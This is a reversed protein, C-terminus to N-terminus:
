VEVDGIRALGGSRISNGRFLDDLYEEPDMNSGRGLKMAALAATANGQSPLGDEGWAFGEPLDPLNGPGCLDAITQADEESMSADNGYWHSATDPVQAAPKAQKGFNDPGLGHVIYLYANANDKHAAPITFVKASSM